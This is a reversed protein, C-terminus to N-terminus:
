KNFFGVRASRLSFVPTQPLIGWSARHHLKPLRSLLTVNFMDFKIPSYRDGLGLAIELPESGQESTRYILSEQPLYGTQSRPTRKARAEYTEVVRRM